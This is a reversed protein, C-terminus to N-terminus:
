SYTNSRLLFMSYHRNVLKGDKSTVMKERDIIKKIKLNSKSILPILDITDYLTFKDKVFPLSKMLKKQAFTLAFVGDKKLVRDIENLMKIPHKWFYLTNVSFIKDFINNKFPLNEGDYLQFTINNKTSFASNIRKAENLMTESIELGFFQINKAQKLVENLHACNGHGIELVTNGDKIKLSNISTLTMDINSENMNKAVIKGIEGKPCRLQIELQKLEEKTLKKKM